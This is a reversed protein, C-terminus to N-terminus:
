GQGGKLGGCAGGGREGREGRGRDSGTGGVLFFICRYKLFNIITCTTYLCILLIYLM